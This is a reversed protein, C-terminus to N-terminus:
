GLMKYIKVQLDGLSSMESLWKMYKFLIMSASVCVCLTHCMWSAIFGFQNDKIIWTVM